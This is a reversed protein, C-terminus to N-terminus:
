ALSTTPRVAGSTNGICGMEGLDRFDFGVPDRCFPVLLATDDSHLVVAFMYSTIELVEEAQFHKAWSENMTKSEYTRKLM